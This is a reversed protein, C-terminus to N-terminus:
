VGQQKGKSYYIAILKQLAASVRKGDKALSALVLDNVTKDKLTVTRRRRRVSLAAPTAPHRPSVVFM